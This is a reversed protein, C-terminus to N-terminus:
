HGPELIVCDHEGAFDKDLTILSQGLSRATALIIGDVIGFDSKGRGRVASKIAAAELCIERTIPSVDTMQEVAEVRESVPLGSRTAWDAIEALQIQSIYLQSDGAAREIRNALRRSRFIAVLASTDLFM